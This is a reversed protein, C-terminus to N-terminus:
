VQVLENRIRHVETEARRGDTLRQFENRIKQWNVQGTM